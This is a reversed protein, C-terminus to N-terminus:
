VITHKPLEIFFTSGKGPSSEAYTKGNMRHLAKAVMALGIGTGPFEESHHLRQFIEFIRDHYKMDFGVGNDKVKILWNGPNEDLGVEILPSPKGDTFKIANEILNRLAISLGTEDAIIETDPIDINLTFSKENLEGRYSGVLSEVFSKIAIKKEILESRELRSYSLLDDILQHMQLTSSRITKIFHVAEDNLSEGHELLLLKSYGDIGRLPAKLDHSVSYTFTELEKNAAQLQETRQKVRNELEAYLQINEISRAAANALTQLLQMETENPTYHDKWYNGIAGIPNSVNIPVMALSKVFTPSYVDIPIRSDTFIDEIIVPQKNQMVWGSICADLPFKRGKWLPQIADENVYFCSNNERFVLTAGDAGILNRASHAVIEQVEELSQVSSLQQIVDILIELRHNLTRIELEKQKRESIDRVFVLGGHQGNYYIPEGSTEVWVEEGNPRIFKQELLSLVSEKKDNLIHIRKLALERFDPHVFDLVPKDIMEVEASVGFLQLAPKNLYAFRHNIQIFIPDPASEVITRFRKESEILFQEGRKREVEKWLADMLIQVQLVDSQEYNGTKNALGLVAVIQNNSFVPISMYRFLPAHGEPLGKKHPHPAMFDNVVIEKRQRVAEGWIGTKELQYVTEPEIVSCVNMVDNSWTNLTFENKEENYFYIYGIKSGTLQIAESLAYDLFGQVDEARHQFINVLSRLRAENQLINEETQKRETIDQALIAIDDEMPVVVLRLWTPVSIVEGVYINDIIKPKRTNAVEIYTEFISTGEHTPFLDLLRKGIIDEPTTHNIRAITQNEYVWTFDIIENKENRLPHLITFGDPSFEQAIRFREENKRITENLEIQEQKVVIIETILQTVDLLFDMAVKVEKKSVVPVKSLSDFYEKEDFNYKKAQERFFNMDPEEYFFQGTFLNAIHEGKIVIPVAVDVLGNLCQYHHFRQGEAMKSALETDSIRCLESSVPNIRHFHTCIRRWGSQSLVNGELDLIATLFGTTKYFGELLINIKEFDILDLIRVNM